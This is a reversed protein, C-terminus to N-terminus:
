MLTQLGRSTRASPSLWASHDRICRRCADTVDSHAACQSRHENGTSADSTCATHTPQAQSYLLTRAFCANHPPPSVGSHTHYRQHTATPQPHCRACTRHSARAAHSLHLMCTPRLVTQRGFSCTSNPPAACMIHLTACGTHLLLTHHRCRCRM